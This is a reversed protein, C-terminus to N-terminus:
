VVKDAEEILIKVKEIFDRVDLFYNPYALKLSKLKGASVLVLDKTSDSEAELKAYMSTAESLENKAFSGIRVSKEVKDLVILNYYGGLRGAHIENAAVSLGSVKDLVDLKAELKSIAKYVELASMNAHQPASASEEVHAFASSVLAFFELWEKNGHDTKFSENRFIGMTEVATAWTHQLKTRIQVEVAFGKYQKAVENRALTNNYKFVLHVGRYGDSKPTTIYDNKKYLEHTFRSTDEYETQIARVEDISNVVARVGGVDQMRALSMDPYRSLKNIITPLRKLRQAVIPSEYKSVKRRLTAQFTNMPYAHCTRWDNVISIAKQYESSDSSSHAIIEGARNIQTKSYLIIPTTSM